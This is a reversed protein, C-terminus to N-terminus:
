QVGERGGGFAGRGVAQAQLAQQQIDSQRQIEGIVNQTYPNMFASIDPPLMATQQAGLASTIGQQVLPQGVGPQAAATFAQQELPSPGAVQFEPIDVPKSALEAGIDFLALKRAEIEPAERTITTQREPASGGGSGGGGFYQKLGTVDNVTGSGGHAILLKREYENIHALHVDGNTGHATIDSYLKEFLEVKENISLKEINISM